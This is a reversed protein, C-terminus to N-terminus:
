EDSSDLAYYKSTKVSNTVADNKDECSFLLCRGGTGWLVHKGASGTADGKFGGGFQGFNSFVHDDTDTALGGTIANAFLHGGSSVAYNSFAKSSREEKGDKNYNKKFL